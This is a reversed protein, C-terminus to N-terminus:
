VHVGFGAGFDGFPHLLREIGDEGGQLVLVQFILSLLPRLQLGDLVLLWLIVPVVLRVLLHCTEIILALKAM